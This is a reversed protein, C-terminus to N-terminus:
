ALVFRILNCRCYSFFDLIYKAYNGHIHTSSSFFVAEGLCLSCSFFSAVVVVVVVFYDLCVLWVVVFVLCVAFWFWGM